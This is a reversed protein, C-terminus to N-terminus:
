SEVLVTATVPEPLTIVVVIGAADHATVTGPDRVVDVVVVLM